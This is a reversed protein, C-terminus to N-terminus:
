CSVGGDCIIKLLGFGDHEFRCSLKGNRIQRYLWQYEKGGIRLEYEAFFTRFHPDDIGYKKSERLFEYLQDILEKKSIM